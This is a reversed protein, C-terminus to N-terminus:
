RNEEATSYGVDIWARMHDGYRITVILASHSSLRSRSCLLDRSLLYFVSMFSLWALGAAIADTALPGINQMLPMIAASGFALFLARFGSLFSM